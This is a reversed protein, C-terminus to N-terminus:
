AGAFDHLLPQAALAPIRIKRPFRLDGQLDLCKRCGLRWLLAAAPILKQSSLTKM